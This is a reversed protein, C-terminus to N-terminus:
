FSIIIWILRIIFYYMYYNMNIILLLCVILLIFFQSICFVFEYSCSIFRCICSLWAAVTLYYFRYSNSLTLKHCAFVSIICKNFVFKCYTNSIVFLLCLFYKWIYWQCESNHPIETRHKAILHMVKLTLTHARTLKKAPTNQICLVQKDGRQRHTNM